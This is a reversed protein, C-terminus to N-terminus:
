LNSLYNMPTPAMNYVAHQFNYAFLVGRDNLLHRYYADRFNTTTFMLRQGFSLLPSLFSYGNQSFFHQMATSGNLSDELVLIGGDSLLCIAQQLRKLNTPVDGESGLIIIRSRPLMNKELDETTLMDSQLVISSENKFHKNPSTHAFIIPEGPYAATTILAAYNPNDVQIHALSGRVSFADQIKSIRRLLSSDMPHVRGPLYHLDKEEVLPEESEKLMKQPCHIRSCFHLNQVHGSNCWESSILYLFNLFIAIKPFM